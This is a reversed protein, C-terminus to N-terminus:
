TCYASFHRHFQRSTSKTRTTYRLNHPTLEHRTTLIQNTTIQRVKPFSYCIKNLKQKREKRYKLSQYRAGTTEQSRYSVGLNYNVWELVYDDRVSSFILHRAQNTMGKDYGSSLSLNSHQHQTIGSHKRLATLEDKSDLTYLHTM